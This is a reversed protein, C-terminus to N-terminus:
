IGGSLNEKYSQVRQDGGESDQQPAAFDTSGTHTHLRDTHWRAASPGAAPGTGALWSGPSRPWCCPIEWKIWTHVHKIRECSDSRGSVNQKCFNCSFSLSISRSSREIRWAACLWSLVIWPRASDLLVLSRSTIAHQVNVTVYVRRPSVLSSM